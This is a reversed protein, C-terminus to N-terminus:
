KKLMKATKKGQRIIYVGQPLDSVNIDLKESNPEYQRMLVGNVNYMELHAGTQLNLNEIRLDEDVPNPYLKLNINLGELFDDSMLHQVEVGPGCVQFPHGGATTLLVNYKGETSTGSPFYLYPLTKGAMPVGDKYWQFSTFTYDTENYNQNVALVSNYYQVILDAEYPRYVFLEKTEEKPGNKGEMKVSYIIRHKDTRSLDYTFSKLTVGDVIHPEVLQNEYWIEAAPDETEVHIIGQKIGCDTWFVYGISDLLRPVDLGTNADVVTVNKIKINTLSFTHVITDSPFYNDDGPHFARISITGTGVFIFQNGSIIVRQDNPVVTEYTIPLSPNALSSAALAGAMTLTDGVAVISANGPNDWKLKQSAKKIILTYEASVAYHNSDGQQFAKIVITDSVIVNTVEGTLSDISAVGIGGNKSFTRKLGPIPNQQIPNVYSFNPEYEMEVPGMYSFLLPPTIKTVTLIGDYYVFTYNGSATLPRGIVFKYTGVPLANNVTVPNGATDTVTVSLSGVPPRILDAPLVSEDDTGVFGSYVVPPWDIPPPTVDGYERYQNVIKVIIATRGVTMYATDLYVLRYNMPEAVRTTLIRCSEVTTDTMVGIGHYNADRISDLYAKPVPIAPLASLFVSTDQGNVFGTFRVTLPITDIPNGYLKYKSDASIILNRKDIFLMSSPALTIDYNTATGGTLLIDYTSVNTNSDVAPSTLVTPGTAIPRTFKGALFETSDNEGTKFGSYSIHYYEGNINPRGITPDGYAKHVTDVWAYLPRKTITLTDTVYKFVYNGNVAVAPSSFSIPYTGVVSDATAPTRLQPPSQIANISDDWSHFGGHSSSYRYTLTPIVDGYVVSQPDATVTLTDPNVTLTGHIYTIAYNPSDEGGSIWVSDPYPAVKAQQPVSCRAQVPPDLADLGFLPSSYTVRFNSPAPNDAGYIRFTDQVSLTIPYPLVTLTYHATDANYNNDSAQTAEVEITGVTDVMSITGFIPGIIAKGTGGIIDYNVTGGRENYLTNEYSFPRSYTQSPTTDLFAFRADAKRIILEYRATDAKFYDTEPQTALVNIIGSVTVTHIEGSAANIQAVGPSTEIEYKVAGAGTTYISSDVAQSTFSFTPSYVTDVKAQTFHLGPKIKNITITYSTDTPHYNLSADQYARVKITSPKVNRLIGATDVATLSMGGSEVVYNVQGSSQSRAKNTYSFTPSYDKATPSVTDFVLTAKARTIKFLHTIESTGYRGLIDDDITAKIHVWGVNVGTLVRDGTTLTTMTAGYNSPTTLSGPGLVYYNVAGTSGLDSIATFTYSETPDYTTDTPTVTWRLGPDPGTIFVKYSLSGPAVWNTTDRQQAKVEIYGGATVNTIEGTTGNVDGAGSMKTYTIRGNSESYATNTYSFPSSYNQATPAPFTFRLVPTAKTIELSDPAYKFAYNDSSAPTAMEILYKRVDSEKVATTKFTPPILNQIPPSPTTTFSYATALSSPNVTSYVRQQGPNPKITLTDKVVTLKMMVTPSDEYNSDGAKTALINTTGVGVINLTSSGTVTAVNSGGSAISYSIAGTNQPAPTMDSCLASLDFSTSRYLVVTTDLKSWELTQPKKKITYTAPRYIFTYNSSAGDKLKISDTYTGADANLGMISSHIYATPAALVAETEGNKFDGEGYDFKFTPDGEGYTKSTDRAYVRLPAPTITLTGSIPNITYNDATGGIVNITHPGPSSNAAYTPTTSYSLGSVVGPGDDFKFGGYTVSYTVTAPDTGYEISKPVATVSLTAKQLNFTKSVPSPALYNPIEIQQATVTVPTSVWSRVVAMNKSAGIIELITPDSSVYTIVAQTNNSTAANMGEFKITDGYTPSLLSSPLNWTILAQEPNVTVTFTSDVHKYNITSDVSLTFHVTGTGVFDIDTAVGGGNKTITAVAPTTPTSSVAYSVPEASTSTAQYPATSLYWNDGYIPTSPVAWTITQNIKRITARGSPPASLTYNPAALGGLTFGSGSFNVQKNVGANPNNFTPTPANLTVNAVDAPIVGNLTGTSAFTAVNTGNVNNTGNYDRDNVAVGTLTVPKPDIHSNPINANNSLLDYNSAKLSNTLTIGSVNVTRTGVGASSYDAPSCTYDQGQVLTEGPVLDDFLLNVTNDYRSGDYVKSLPTATNVSISKKDITGPLIHTSPISYNPSLCTIGTVHVNKGIGANPDEFKPSSYNWGINPSTTNSGGFLFTEDNVAGTVTLGTVVADTTGDYDKNNVTGGTITLPAPTIIGTNVTYSYPNSSLSYNQANFNITVAVQKGTGVDKAGTGTFVATAVYDVNPVLSEGALLGGFVITDITAATGGDYTKPKITTNDSNITAPLKTINGTKTPQATLVYNGAKSGGLKFGNLIVNKGTGANKDVFEATADTIDSNVDANDASVVGNVTGSNLPATTNGDYPKEITGVTITVPKPKIRFYVTCAPSNEYPSGVVGTVTIYARPGSLTANTNNFRALTYDTNLLLQAGTKTDKVVFDTPATPLIPSGTYERAAISDPATFTMYEKFVTYLRVTDGKISTLNSVTTGASYAVVNPASQLGWGAFAYDGSKTYTSTPLTYSADYAIVQNPMPGGGDAGNGIFKIIYSIPKWKAVLTIDNMPNIYSGTAGINAGSTNEWGNDFEYGEDATFNSSPLLYNSGCAVNTVHPMSGTGHAGSQFFLIPTKPLWKATLTVGTAPMPFTMGPQRTGIGSSVNWGGFDACTKAFGGTGALVTVTECPFYTRSTPVSGSTHGNGEYTVSNLTMGCINMLTAANNNNTVVDVKSNGYLQSNASEVAVPGSSVPLWYYLKGSADTKVDNMGYSPVSIIKNTHINLNNQTIPEGVTLTALYVNSGSGNTPQPFITKTTCNISGGTITITGNAGTNGPGIDGKNSSSGKMAAITGGTITITGGAGNSDGGGGIGAANGVGTAMVTGGNITITGGAGNYGGGIGAANGGGTATVTGGSIITTGGIGNRSGGIGAGSGGGTATVTGDNITITGGAGNYGSGIGAADGGGQVQVSGGNITITGGAGNNGGGIGTGGNVGTATVTGGTIIINGGAGNDGGGIGAGSYGGVAITAGGNITITGGIGNRGGGIGAAGDGGTAEVTGGTIVTAGGSGTNGGGIGAGSAGGTATLTGGNITITGGAGGNGGGIGAGNTGGTATITGDTISINGGARTSGGGIGAAGNGGRAEVTGGTIVTTGGAGTNGGGIGAAGNGGTAVVKGGTITITGSVATAYDGGIGAQFNLGVCRLQGTNGHIFLANGSTCQIGSTVTVNCGDQLVLHVDGSVTLRGTITITNRLEYYGSSLIGGNRNATILTPAGATGGSLDQAWATGTSFCGAALLM